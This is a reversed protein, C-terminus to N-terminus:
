AELGMNAGVQLILNLDTELRADSTQAAIFRLQVQIHRALHIRLLDKFGILSLDAEQLHASDAGAPYSAKQVEYIDQKANQVFFEIAFEEQSESEYNLKRERVKVDNSFLIYASAQKKGSSRPLVLIVVPEGLVPLQQGKFVLWM